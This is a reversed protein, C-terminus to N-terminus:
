CQPRKNVDPDDPKHSKARGTLTIFVRRGQEGATCFDFSRTANTTNALAGLPGFQLSSVNEGETSNITSNGILANFRTLVGAGACNGPNGPVVCWGPGFENQDDPEGPINAQVSVTVGTKGAESRASNVAVLFDNVNATLRNRAIMGQFNPIAVSLTTGTIAVVVMLELLTWGALRKKMLEDM